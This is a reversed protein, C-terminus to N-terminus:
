TRVSTNLLRSLDGETLQIGYFVSYLERLEARLDYDCLKPYFLTPLWLIGALRNVSPPRDIWQFPAHPIVFVRGHQVAATEKWLPNAAVVRSWGETGGDTGLYDSILIIEPNWSVVQELSVPTNGYGSLNNEPVRAVNAGGCWEITQTHMSGVPETNLGKLGEAYYVRVRQDVPVRAVIARARDLIRQAHSRLAKARRENGSLEGLRRYLEPIGELDRLMLNVLPVGLKRSLTRASEEAFSDSSISVNLVLGPKTMLLSELNVGATKGFWGGLVPLSRYRAPIYSADNANIPFNWGILLEPDFSYILTTGMPSTSFTKKVEPALNITKGLMDTFRRTEHSPREPRSCALCVLTALLYFTKVRRM